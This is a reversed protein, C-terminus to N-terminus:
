AGSGGGMSVELAMRSHIVGTSIDGEGKFDIALTGDYGVSILAEVMPDLDYPEHLMIEDIISDDEEDELGEIDEGLLEQAADKLDLATFGITSARVVTAYPTLRRLYGVADEQTAAVGFDPMTGIRFGGVKKILDTLREPLETLGARPEIMVNLELRDAWEMTRKLREICREVSAEDDKSEVSMSIANCGLINGAQLVRQIRELSQEAQKVSGGLRQPAVESLLLIACGAKDALDRLQGLGERGMGALLDTSLNMGHLGLTERTYTPLEMLKLPVGRKPKPKLLPALCSASLTLLMNAASIYSPGVEDAM